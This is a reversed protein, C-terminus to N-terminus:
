APVEKGEVRLRLRGDRLRADLPRSAPMPSDCSAAMRTHSAYGRAVTAASSRMGRARWDACAGADHAPPEGPVDAAPASAGLTRAPSRAAGPHARAPRMAHRLARTRTGRRAYGTGHRPASTHAHAMAALRTRACHRCACFARDARKRAPAHRQCAPDATGICTDAPRRRAGRCTGADARGGHRDTRALRRLIASIRFRNTAARRGVPGKLGCDCAGASRRQVGM